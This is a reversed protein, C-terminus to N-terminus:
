AFVTGLQIQNLEFQPSVFHRIVLCHSTIKQIEIRRCKNLKTQSGISTPARPPVQVGVSACVGRLRVHRGIGGSAGIRISDCLEVQAPRHM